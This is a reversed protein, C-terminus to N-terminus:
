YYFKIEFKEVFAEISYDSPLDPLIETVVLVSNIESRFNRFVTRIAERVSNAETLTKAKCDFQLILVYFENHGQLVEGENFSIKMYKICPLVENKKIVNPIIRSGVLNKITTQTKLYNIINEIM